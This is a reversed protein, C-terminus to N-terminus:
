RSLEGPGCLLTSPHTIYCCVAFRRGRRGHSKRGHRWYIHRWPWLSVSITIWVPVTYVTDCHSKHIYCRFALDGHISHLRNCSQPVTTRNWAPFFRKWKEQFTWFPELAWNAGRVIPLHPIDGWFYLPRPTVSILRRWSTRLDFVYPTIGGSWYVNESHELFHMCM